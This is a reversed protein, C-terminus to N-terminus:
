LRRARRRHWRLFLVVLLLTSSVLLLVDEAALGIGSARFPRGAYPTNIEVHNSVKPGQWMTGVWRTFSEFQDSLKALVFWEPLWDRTSNHGKENERRQWLSALRGGCARNLYLRIKALFILLQIPMGTLGQDVDAMAAPVSRARDYFM